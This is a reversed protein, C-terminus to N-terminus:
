FFEPEEFQVDNNTTELRSKEESLLDIIEVLRMSANNAQSFTDYIEEQLLQNESWEQLSLALAEQTFKHVDQHPQDFQQYSPLHRFKEFGNGHFYWQGVKCSHHDVHVLNWEESNLGTEFARFGNQMYINQDVIALSANSVIQCYSVKEFTEQSIRAVKNFSDMFHDTAEKSNKTLEHMKNSSTNMIDASITFQKIINAINATADQTNKALTRVEDAVVAFGRGQEGARAAEIAANLALLNTQDAISSIVTIINSIEDTRLHLEGANTRIEGVMETQLTLDEVVKNITQIGETSITAAQSSIKEITAMQETIEALDIKSKNLNNLLSVGRLQRISNEMKKQQENRFSDKLRSFSMEINGLLENFNGHLGARKVNRTYVNEEIRKFTTDVERFFTELQDLADNLKWATKSLKNNKPIHTIRSGFDGDHIKTTLDDIKILMEVENKNRYYIFLLPIFLLIILVFMLIDFGFQFISYGLLATINLISFYIFQRRSFRHFLNKM